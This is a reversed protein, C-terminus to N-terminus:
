EKQDAQSSQDPLGHEQEKAANTPQQQSTTKPAVVDASAQSNKRQWYEKLKEDPKPLTWARIGMEILTLCAFSSILVAPVMSTEKLFFGLFLVVLAYKYFEAKVLDKVASAAEQSKINSRGISYFIDLPVILSLGGMLCSIAFWAAVGAVGWSELPGSMLQFNQKLQEVIAPDTASELNSQISGGIFIGVSSAALVLVLLCMPLLRRSYSRGMQSHASREVLAQLEPDRKVPQNWDDDEEDDWGAKSRTSSSSSANLSASSSVNSRGQFKANARAAELAFLEQAQKQSQAQDKTIQEVQSAPNDQNAQNVPNSVQEQSTAVSSKESLEQNPQNM